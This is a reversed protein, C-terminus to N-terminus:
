SHLAATEAPASPHYVELPSDMQVGEQLMDNGEDFLDPVEVPVPIFCGIFVLFAVVAMLRCGRGLAMAEDALPPHRLGLLTVLLAWVLWGWYQTTVALSVMVAVVLLSVLHHKRGFVAYLIHGGDLQSVPLLNIATVLFGFWGVLALPSVVVVDEAGIGPFIIQILLRELLPEGLM